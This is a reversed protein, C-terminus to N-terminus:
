LLDETAAAGVGGVDFEMAMAVLSFIDVEPVYSIAEEWGGGSRSVSSVRDDVVDTDFFVTSVM